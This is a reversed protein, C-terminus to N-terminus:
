NRTLERGIDQIQSRTLLFEDGGELAVIKMMEEYLGPELHNAHDLYLEYAWRALETEDYDGNVANLLSEGFEAKTYTM